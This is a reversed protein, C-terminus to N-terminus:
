KPEQEKLLEYLEGIKNYLVQRADSLLKKAKVCNRIMKKIEKPTPKVEISRQGSEDMWFFDDSNHPLCEGKKKVDIRLELEDDNTINHLM